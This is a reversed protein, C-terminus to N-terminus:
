KLQEMVQDCSGTLFVVDTLVKTDYKYLQATEM